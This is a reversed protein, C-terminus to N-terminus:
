NELLALSKCNNILYLNQNLRISNYINDVEKITSCDDSILIEINKYTQNLISDITRSITLSRNYSPIGVTVLKDKMNEKMNEKMKEKMMLEIQAPLSIVIDTGKNKDM